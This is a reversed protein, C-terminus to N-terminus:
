IFLWLLNLSSVEVENDQNGILTPGEETITKVPKPPLLFGCDGLDLYKLVKDDPDIQSLYPKTESRHHVCISLAYCVQISNKPTGQHWTKGYRVSCLLIGMELVNALDPANWACICGNTPLQWQPKNIRGVAV